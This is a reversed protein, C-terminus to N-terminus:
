SGEASAAFAARQGDTLPVPRRSAYDFAVLTVTAVACVEGRQGPEMRLRLSSRGVHEVAVGIALEGTLVEARYDCALAAVIVGPVPDDPVVDDFFAFWADQCRRLVQDFGLHHMGAERIGSPREARAEFDDEAIVDRHVFVV